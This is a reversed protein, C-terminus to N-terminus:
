WHARVYADIGKAPAYDPYMRAFVEAAEDFDVPLVQTNRHLYLMALSPARSHGQNCHVLVKDGAALRMAIAVMAAEVLDQPIFKPDPGDIMNLIITRDRYAVLYEPDDKPAAKGKAYGLAERHWPEKGAAIIFWGAKVREVGDINDHDLAHVRDAASGVFLSPSVEIM